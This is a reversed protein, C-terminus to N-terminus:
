KGGFLRKISIREAEIIANVKVASREVKDNTVCYDYEGILKMEDKARKLRKEITEKDETGRGELRKRLENMSPATVFIMVAEPFLKKINLAGETEIELIINRGKDISEQVKARPTGYFNECYETYELVENNDIMSLFEDRSVFHYNEGDIEGPRKDRTTVSVSYDTDHRMSLFYELVTGKGSGSPGSFVILLGKEKM